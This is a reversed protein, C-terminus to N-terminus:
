IRGKPPLPVGFDEHLLISQGDLPNKALAYVARKEKDTLSSWVSLMLNRGPGNHPPNPKGLFANYGLDGVVQALYYGDGTRVVGAFRSPPLNMLRLLTEQTNM